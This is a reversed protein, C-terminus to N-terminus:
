FGAVVEGRGFIRATRNNAHRGTVNFNIRMGDRVGFNLIVSWIAGRVGPRNDTLQYSVGSIDGELDQLYLELSSRLEGRQIVRLRSDFLASYIQSRVRSVDDARRYAGGASLEGGSLVQRATIGLGFGTIDGRGGYYSDREHAFVSGSEEIFTQHIRQRLKLSGLRDRRQPDTDLIRRRELQDAYELVLVHYGGLPLLRVDATYRREFYLFPQSPDSYFPLAWWLSRDGDPLLEERVDTTLRLAILDYERSFFFSKEGRRVDDTTSLLEEVRLYNGDPDPIYQGDEFVYDGLGPEVELYSVGRANRTEESVLYSSTFTLRRRVDDYRLHLRGLFSELDDKTRSLWQYTANADYSFPGFRRISGAALRSRGLAKSWSENLSDEDYLEWRLYDAAQRIELTVRDYRAGTNHASYTNHRRDREYEASLELGNLLGVAGGIQANDISGRGEQSASDLHSSVGEYSARARIRRNTVSAAVTTRSAGFRDRYRLDGYGAGVSFGAVPWVEGRAEHLVETAKSAFEAPLYWRRGFDPDDLRERTTYGAEKVRRHLSVQNPADSNRWLRKYRLDYFDAANDDDQRASLLNRDFETRRYEATITGLRNSRAGAILQYEDSRAPATLEIVPEYDGLSDGVFRYVDSGVFQYSGSGPGVYSFSVSFDGAGDGVYQFVSDPLSDPILSYDGSTDPIVGSRFVRADGGVELLSLDAASFEGAEPRQPDDGERIAGASFFLSSDATLAGARGAFLEQEFSTLLPEYDIEIRSRSDMPRSVTFTIRGTPYDMTYDKSAGRELKVGDLWVSESGPVIAQGSNGTVQYPGQFGDSGGLRATEFRGRPRAAAAAMHWNPYSVAASAGSVQKGMLRNPMGGITIDGLQAHLRKSRLQVNVKDLEGLRSNLTGYSPDYGRDTVAGTIEVGPTLEGEITMNLSQSFESTGTSRASFRFSKAGSLQVGRGGPAPRGASPDTIPSSLRSEAASSIDPIERGIWRSAWDPLRRYVVKLTDDTSFHRETLLLLFAGTGPDYLYDRDRILLSDNLYLSDSDGIIIANDTSVALPIDPAVFVRRVLEVSASLTPPTSLVIAVLFAAIRAHV